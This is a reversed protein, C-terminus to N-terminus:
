VGLISDLSEVMKGNDATLTVLCLCPEDASVVPWHQCDADMASFDGRRYNRDGDQYSGALVISYEPGPHDHTPIQTAAPIKCLATIAMKDALSLRHEEFLSGVPRWGLDALSGTLYRRLPAPLYIDAGADAGLIEPTLEPDPPTDLRQLVDKLATDSMSSAAVGDLLVAGCAEIFRLQAFCDPCMAVHTAVVLALGESLSGTGYDMLIEIDPHHSIM